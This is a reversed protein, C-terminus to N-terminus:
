SWTQISRLDQFSSNNNKKYFIFGDGHKLM